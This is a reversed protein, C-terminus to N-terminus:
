TPPYTDADRACTAPCGPASSAWNPTSSVVALVQLGRQNAVRIDADTGGYTFRGRSPNMAAWSLNLRVWGAGSARAQDLIANKQQRSLQGALQAHVGYQASAAAAPLPAAPVPVALLAILAVLLAPRRPRLARVLGGPSLRAAIRHVRSVSTSM